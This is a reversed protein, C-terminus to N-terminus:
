EEIRVSSVDSVYDMSDYMSRVHLPEWTYTGPLTAYGIYSVSLEMQELDFYQGLYLNMNLQDTVNDSTYYMNPTDNLTKMFNIGAPLPERINFYDQGPERTMTLTVRVQDGVHITDKGDISTIERRVKPTEVDPLDKAFGTMHQIMVINGKINSVNLAEAEKATFTKMYRTNYRLILHENYQGSEMDVEATLEPLEKQNLYYMLEIDPMTYIYNYSINRKQNEIYQYFGEAMKWDELDTAIALLGTGLWEDDEKDTSLRNKNAVEKEDSIGYDDLLEHYYVNALTIDGVEIFARIAQVKGSVTTIEDYNLEIERIADYYDGGLQQGLWLAGIYSVDLSKGQSLYTKISERAEELTYANMYLYAKIKAMRASLLYDAEEAETMRFLGNDMFPYVNLTDSESQIGFLQNRTLEVLNGVVSQATDQDWSLLRSYSEYLAYAEQNYLEITVPQNNTIMEFDNTLETEKMLPYTAVKEKVDFPHVVYDTYNGMFVQSHLEYHGIPLSGLIATAEKEYISDMEKTVIIKGKDDKVEIEYRVSQDTGVVSGGSRLTVGIEDAELFSDEISATLFVPLAAIVSAKTKGVYIDSTVGTLTMRWNTINDPLTFSGEYDGQNNTQVVEFYATNDLDDRMSEPGGEGGYEAGFDQEYSPSMLYSGLIMDRYLASFLDSYPDSDDEYIAFIAEDVVSVNVSAKRPKGKHDEVHLTYHVTEGPKYTEKDFDAKISLARSSHDVRLRNEMRYTHVMRTGDYYIAKILVDPMDEEKFVYEIDTNTSVAANKIGDKVVLVLMPHKPDEEVAEGNFTLQMPVSEGPAVEYDSGDMSLVYEQEGDGYYNGSYYLEEEIVRGKSDTGTLTVEYAHEKNMNAMTLTFMGKDDTTVTEDLIGKEVRNRTYTEITRKYLPSYTSGTVTKEWYVEQIHVDLPMNAVSAGRFNDPEFASTTINDLDIGHISGDIILQNNKTSVDGEIMRDRSFVAVYDRASTYYEQNNLSEVSFQMSQPRWNTRQNMPVRVINSTGQEAEITEEEIRNGQNEWHYEQYTGYEVKFKSDAVPTGSYYNQALDIHVPQGSAVYEEQISADLTYLPKEFQGVTVYDGGVYDGNIYVKVNITDKLYDKIDFAATYTGVSDLTVEKSELVLDHYTLDVRVQKMPEGIRNQIYGFVEITDTPLYISRDTYVYSYYMDGVYTNMERTNVPLYVPADETEVSAIYQTKEKVEFDRSFVGQEDLTGVSKGNIYVQRGKMDYEPHQMWVFVSTDDMTIYGSYDTFQILRFQNNKEGYRAIYIGANPVKEFEGLEWWNESPVRNLVTEFVEGVHDEEIYRQLGLTTTETLAEEIVSEKLPYLSVSIDDQEDFQTKILPIESLNVTNLWQEGIVQRLTQETSSTHFSWERGAELIEEEVTVQDDVSIQYDTDLELGYKPIIQVTKKDQSLQYGVELQPEIEIHNFVSSDVEKSFSVEIGSDISIDDSGEIPYVQRIRFSETTMFGQGYLNTGDDYRFKVLTHGPLAKSLTLRKTTDDVTRVQYTVEPEITLYELVQNDELPFQHTLTFTTETDIENGNDGILDNPEIRFADLDAKTIPYVENSPEGEKNVDNYDKSDTSSQRNITWVIAVSAIVLVGVVGIIYKYWKQM